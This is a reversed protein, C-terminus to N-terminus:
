KSLLIAEVRRNEDRGVQTLNSAVPALYGMGEAEIRSSKINYKTVMRERVSGARHKSLSINSDLSGVSDTHGVLAIRHTPNDTLFTALQQLSAFPGTGLRSAGTEFVLDNLVVHGSIQLTQALQNGQVPAAVPDTPTDPTITGTTDTTDTTDTVPSVPEAAGPAVHIMQIFTVQGLRSIMLSVAEDEGRGASLFRYDRLNVHMDPAPIVDIGFRFEFGGCDVDRCEFLIEYGSAILQDRLPTLVQLSTADGSELQWSLREVRGEIIREPITGTDFVALPLAYSDQSIVRTSMQRAGGPLILQEAQAPLATLIAFVVAARTIM